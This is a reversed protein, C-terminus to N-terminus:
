IILIEALLLWAFELPPLWRNAIAPGRHGARPPRKRIRDLSRPRPARELPSAGVPGSRAPARAHRRGMPSAPVRTGLKEDEHRTADVGWREGPVGDPRGGPGGIPNGAPFERKPAGRWPAARGRLERADIPALAFPSVTPTSARLVPSCPPSRRRAHRPPEFVM